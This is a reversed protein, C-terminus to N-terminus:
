RKIPHKKLFEADERSLQAALLVRQVTRVSVRPEKRRSVKTTIKPQPATIRAAIQAQLRQIEERLPKLEAEVLKKIQADTPAPPPVVVAVTTPPAVQKPPPPEAAKPTIKATAPAPTLPPPTPTRVPAQKVVESATAPPLSIDTPKRTGLQWVLIGAVIALGLALLGRLKGKQPSLPPPISFGPPPPSDRIEPIDDDQSV